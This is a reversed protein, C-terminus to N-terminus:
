RQHGDIVAVVKAYRNMAAIERATKGALDQLKPHDALRIGPDAGRELLLKAVDARKNEAAAILPTGFFHRSNVDAGADLLLAILETSASACCTLLVDSVASGDESHFVQRPDAGAALLMRAIATRRKEKGFGTDSLPCCVGERLQRPNAGRRLLEEVLAVHGQECSVTLASHHFVEDQQDIEAGHDLLFRAIDALGHRCAQVLPLEGESLHTPQCGRKVLLKVGPLDERHIAEILRAAPSKM